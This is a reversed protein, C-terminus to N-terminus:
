RWSVMPTQSLITLSRSGRTIAVYFNEKNQLTDANLVIAHDFELGKILLTRSIIRNEPKRGNLRTKHRAVFAAEEFSPYKNTAYEQATRKMEILLERRYTQMSPDDIVSEMINSIASLDGKELRVFESQLFNPDGFPNRKSCAKLILNKIESIVAQHNSRQFQKDIQRASNMLDKCDMEEISQYRGGM